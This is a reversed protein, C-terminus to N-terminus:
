THRVCFNESKLNVKYGRDILMFKPVNKYPKCSTRLAKAGLKLFYM